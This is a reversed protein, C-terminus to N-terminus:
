RSAAPALPLAGGVSPRLRRFPSATGQKAQYHGRRAQHVTVVEYIHRKRLGGELPAAPRAIHWTGGGKAGTWGTRGCGGRVSSLGRRATRSGGVIDASLEPGSTRKTPAAPKKRNAPAKGRQQRASVIVGPRRHGAAPDAAPCRILRPDRRRQRPRPPLRRRARDLDAQPVPRAQHAA